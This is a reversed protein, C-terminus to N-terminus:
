GLLERHPGDYIVDDNFNHGFFERRIKALRKTSRDIGPGIAFTSVSPTGNPSVYFYWPWDRYIFPVPPHFCVWGWRRTRFELAIHMANFGYVTVSRGPIGITIHGGLHKDLWGYIANRM